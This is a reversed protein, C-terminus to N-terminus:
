PGGGLAFLGFLGWAAAAIIAGPKENFEIGVLVRPIRETIGVCPHTSCDYAIRRLAVEPRVAVGIWPVPNYKVLGLVLGEPGVTTDPYPNSVAVPVGVAFDLSRRDTLWRRYRVAPGTGGIFDTTVFWSVGVANRPGINWMVGLDGIVRSGVATQDGPIVFVDSGPPVTVSNRGFAVGFDTVGFFRCV